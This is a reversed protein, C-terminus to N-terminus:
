KVDKLALQGCGAEIDTGKSWRITVNFPYNSLINVFENIVENSPRSYNGGIENYPIINLKCPLPKLLKALNVADEKADNVDKLLVYEFTIFRKIKHYYYQASEILELLSYKDTIPMIKMRVEESSANLSIALKYRHKDDAMQKIKSAIGATSITIKRSGINFNKRIMSAAKMVNNYNLFPEGMGMFVVNTIKINSNKQLFIMQNVIEAPNLNQLFGMSATACFKCDLTCGSQSSICITNRNKDPMLVSEIKNLKKTRLLFKRTSYEDKGSIKEIALPYLNIKEKLQKILESPINIMDEWSSVCHKYVWNNIQELRFEKEGFQKILNIRDSENLELFSKQNIKGSYEM